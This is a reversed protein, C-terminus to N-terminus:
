GRKCGVLKIFVMLGIFPLAGALRHDPILHTAVAALACAGVVAWGRWAAREGVIRRRCLLMCALFVLGIWVFLTAERAEHLRAGMSRWDAFSVTAGTLLFMAAGLVLCDFALVGFIQCVIAALALVGSVKFALTWRVHDTMEGPRFGIVLFTMLPLFGAEWKLLEVLGPLREGTPWRRPPHTRMLLALALHMRVARLSDSLPRFHSVRVSPDLYRSTIPVRAVSGGARGLRVLVETELGFRGAGCNLARAMGVPYARFGSQSDRVKLGGNLRIMLNSFKRGLLSRAPTGGEVQDEREGLVQALPNARAAEVLRPIEEPDHQGDTDVTVAHTYGRAEAAAFGTMLAAAKGQNRAHTEVWLEPGPEALLAALVQPTADRCGDDVVLAPWGGARVRRVVDALTGANHFTPLLVVPRFPAPGGEPLVGTSPAPRAEAAPPM